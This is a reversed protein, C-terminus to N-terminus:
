LHSATERRARNEDIANEIRDLLDVAAPRGEESGSNRPQIVLPAIRDRLSVLVAHDSDYREVSTTAPDRGVIIDLTQAIEAIDPHDEM